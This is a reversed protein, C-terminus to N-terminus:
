IELGVNENVMKGHDVALQKQADFRFLEDKIVPHGTLLNIYKIPCLIQFVPRPPLRLRTAGLLCTGQSCDATTEVQHGVKDNRFNDQCMWALPM